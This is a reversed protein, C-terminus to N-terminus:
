FHTPQPYSPTVSKNIRIAEAEATDKLQNYTIEGTAWQTLPTTEAMTRHRDGANIVWGRIVKKNAEIAAYLRHNGDMIIYGGGSRIVCIPHKSKTGNFVQDTFRIDEM